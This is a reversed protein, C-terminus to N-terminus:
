GDLNKSFYSKDVYHVDHENHLHNLVYALENAKYSKSFMKPIDINVIKYYTGFNQVQFKAIGPYCFEHTGRDLVKKAHECGTHHLHLYRGHQQNSCDQHQSNTLLYFNYPDPNPGGGGPGSGGLDTGSRNSEGIGLPNINVLYENSNSDLLEYM